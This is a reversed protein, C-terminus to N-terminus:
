PAHRCVEVVKTSLQPLSERISVLGFWRGGRESGGGAERGERGAGEGFEGGGARGGAEGEDEGFKKLARLVIVPLECAVTFCRSCLFAAQGGLGRRLLVM